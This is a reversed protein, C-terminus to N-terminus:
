RKDFLLIRNPNFIHGKESKSHECVRELIGGDPLLVKSSLTSRITLFFSRYNLINRNPNAFMGNATGVVEKAFM